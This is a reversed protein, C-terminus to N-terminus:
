ALSIEGKKDARDYNIEAVAELNDDDALWAAVEERLERNAKYEPDTLLKVKIKRKSLTNDKAAELYSLLSQTAVEAVDVAEEKAPKSGKKGAVPKGSTAKARGNTKGEAEPLDYVTEVVLDQRDYEKGDKSKRKGFEKTREADTLQITRQRTGIIAEFNFEKEPLREEPFGEGGDLPHVLSHIYKSFAAKASLERDEEVDGNKDVPTITHGNDSVAWRDFDGAVKLNTVTDEDAGDVRVSLACNLSHPKDITQGKKPGEKIKLKGPKFPEGNFEDTFEYGTITSDVGNLFGGGRKFSSPRAGM